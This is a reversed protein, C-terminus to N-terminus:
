HLLVRLLEFFDERTFNRLTERLFRELSDRSDFRDTYDSDIPCTDLTKLYEEAKDASVDGFIHLSGDYIPNVTYPKSRSVVEGDVLEEVYIDLASSPKKVSIVHFLRSSTTSEVAVVKSILNM